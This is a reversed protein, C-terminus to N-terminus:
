RLPNFAYAFGIRGSQMSLDYQTRRDATQTGPFTSTWQFHDNTRVTGFDTYRYEARVSWNSNLKREVGAGATWGNAWFIESPQYFTNDTVNRAEFQAGTWGGIGYILTQENLLVGARMLASAMWRSAVQPRFDGVASQGTPGNGNFYTFTKVGASTFNLDAATAELQGGVVFNSVQASWGAFVDLLGGANRGRSTGLLDIGNVGFPAPNTPFAQTDREASIVNSKTAAGGATAGWYAGAWGISSPEVFSAKYALGAVPRSAVAANSLRVRQDTANRAQARAEAAERKITRNETELASIRAELAALKELVREGDTPSAHSATTFAVAAFAIALLRPFNLVPRIFM